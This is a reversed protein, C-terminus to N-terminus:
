VHNDIVVFSIYQVTLPQVSDNPTPAGRCASHQPLPVGFAGRSCCSGRWLTGLVRVRM